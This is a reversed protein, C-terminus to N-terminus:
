LQVIQFILFYKSNSQFLYITFLTKQQFNQILQNQIPQLLTRTIINTRLKFYVNKSFNFVQIQNDLNLVQNQNIFLSKFLSAQQYYSEHIQKEQFQQNQQIFKFNFLKKHPCRSTIM